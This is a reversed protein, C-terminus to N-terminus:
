IYGRNDYALPKWKRASTDQISIALYRFADAAHSAWDHVPTEKFEDIRTNFDKRYNQL